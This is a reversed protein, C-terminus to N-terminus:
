VNKSEKISKVIVWSDCFLDNYNPMWPSRKTVKGNVVAEMALYPDNVTSEEPTVLRVQIRAGMLLSLCMKHINYNDDNWDEQWAYYQQSQSRLYVLVEAFSAHKKVLELTATM